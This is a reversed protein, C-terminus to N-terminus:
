LDYRRRAIIIQREGSANARQERGMRKTRAKMVERDNSVNAREERAMRKTEGDKGDRVMMSDSAARAATGRILETGDYRRM